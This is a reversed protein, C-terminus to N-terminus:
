SKKDTQEKEEETKVKTVFSYFLILVVCFLLCLETPLAINDSKDDENQNL